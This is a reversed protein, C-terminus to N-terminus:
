CPARAQPRSGARMGVSCNGEILHAGVVLGPVGSNQHTAARLPLHPQMSAADCCSAGPPPAPPALLSAVLHWSQSAV